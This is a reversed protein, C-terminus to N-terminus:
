RPEQDRLLFSASKGIMEDRSYGYLREAAPNWSTIIGDPGISINADTSFEVIAALRSIRDRKDDAKERDTLARVAAIVLPGDETDVRSLSLNLPFETGDRRRGRLCRPSMAPKRETTGERDPEPRRIGPGAFYAERHAPHGPRVSDPVLTEIPQGVLDDREYGFLSQARRNIYRIVGGRDVGVLADPVAEVLGVFDAEHQGPAVHRSELEEGRPSM